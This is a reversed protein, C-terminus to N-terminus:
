SRDPISRSASSLLIDFWRVTRRENPIPEIGFQEVGKPHHYKHRVKEELEQETHM